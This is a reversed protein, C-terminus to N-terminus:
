HDKMTQPWYYPKTNTEKRGRSKEKSSTHAQNKIFSCFAFYPILFSSAWYLRALRYTWIRGSLLPCRVINGGLKTVGGVFPPNLDPYGAAGM